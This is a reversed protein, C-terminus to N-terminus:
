KHKSAEQGTADRWSQLSDFTTDGWRILFAGAPTAYRNRSFALQNSGALEAPSVDILASAVPGAALRNRSVTVAALTYKLTVAPGDNDHSDNSRLTARTVNSILGFGACGPSGANAAHNGFSKCRQITLNTSDYGWIGARDTTETNDYALCRDVLAGDVDGLILGGARNRFANVRSLTVNKNADATEAYTILGAKGNDHLTVKSLTVDAIATAGGWGGIAIGFGGFGGVDVNEFRIGHLLSDNPQDNYVNVCDKNDPTGDAYAGGVFALDRVVFGEANYIYLGYDGHADLIPRAGGGYKGVTVPASPTGTDNAQFYLGADYTGGAQFLLKDGPNFDTADVHAVTKWATRPSTGAAADDGTTSIYFTTSALRRPELSEVTVSREEGARSM